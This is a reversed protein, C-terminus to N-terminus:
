RENKEDRSPRTGVRFGTSNALLATFRRRRDDEDATSCGNREPLHESLTEEVWQRVSKGHLTAELQAKKFLEDDIHLTADM